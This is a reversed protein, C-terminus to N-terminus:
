LDAVMDCREALDLDLQTVGGVSHSSWFVVVEKYLSQFDPHHNAREAVLALRMIFGIAANYSNFKYTKKLAPAGNVSTSLQWGQHTSLWDQMTAPDLAVTM